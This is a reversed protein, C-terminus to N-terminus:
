RESLKPVVVLLEDLVVILLSSHGDESLVVFCVLRRVQYVEWRSAVLEM